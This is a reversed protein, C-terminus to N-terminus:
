RILHICGSVKEEGSQSDSDKFVVMYFYVGAPLDPGLNDVQGNWCGSLNDSEFVREGWRNFVKWKGEVCKGVAGGIHYCDNTGDQDPTFVNALRFDNALNELQLNIVQTDNCGAITDVFIANVSYIGPDLHMKLDKGFYNQNNIDWQVSPASTAAILEINGSCADTSSEVVGSFPHGLRIESEASDICNNKYVRLVVHYVGSKPYVVFPTALNSTDGNTGPIGFDWSYRQAGISNNTLQVTSDCAKKDAGPGAQLTLDCDAVNFQYDRKTESILVGKRYERVRIGAVFQGPRTPTLTLKGSFTDIKLPPSGDIPNLESYTNLWTIQSFPPSQPLGNLSNDPRPKSANAGTYPWFLDYVLSDGDADTASHDFQLFANTCLFNPPLLSFDASTNERKDPLDSTDPITTWYNAGQAGPNQLNSISNNRCCRQFSIIYGGQGSPLYLTTDYIYYDVCANPANALCNYHLKVLREPTNRPVSIPYGPLLTGTQKNFVYFYATADEAIAGPAGNLCDIFLNMRINYRGSDLYKYLIEGGVIHTASVFNGSLAIVILPLFKRYKQL